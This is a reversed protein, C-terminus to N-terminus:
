APGLLATQGTEDTRIRAWSGDTFLLQVFRPGNRFEPVLPQKWHRVGQLAPLPLEFPCELVADGPRESLPPRRVSRAFETASAKVFRGLGRLAGGLSGDQDARLEREAAASGDQTDRLRLVAVRHGTIVLFAHDHRVAQYLGVAACRPDGGRVAVYGAGGDDSFLDLVDDARSPSGNEDLGRVRYREQDLQGAAALVRVTDGRLWEAAMRQSLLEAEAAAHPNTM